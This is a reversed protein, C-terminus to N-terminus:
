CFLKFKSHFKKFKKTKQYIKKTKPEDNKHNTMALSKKFRAFFLFNTMALLDVLIQTAIQCKAGRLSSVTCIEIMKRSNLGFFECNEM